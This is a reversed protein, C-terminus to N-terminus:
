FPSYAGNAQLCHVGGTSQSPQGVWTGANEDYWITITNHGDFVRFATGLSTVKQYEPCSKLLQEVENPTKSALAKTSIAEQVDRMSANLRSPPVKVM